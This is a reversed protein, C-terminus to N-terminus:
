NECLKHLDIPSSGFKHCNFTRTRVELVWFAELILSTPFYEDRHHINQTYTDMCLARHCTLFDDVISQNMLIHDFIPLPTLIM